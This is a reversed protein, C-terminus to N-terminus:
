DSWKKKKKTLNLTRHNGLAILMAAREGIDTADNLQRTLWPVLQRTVIPDSPSCFEGMVLKPYMNLSVTSNICAQYVLRSMSLASTIKLQRKSEVVESELFEMFRKLIEKTPTEISTVKSAVANVAEEGVVRGEMIMDLVLMTSPNTGTM